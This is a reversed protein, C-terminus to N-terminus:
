QTDRRDKISQAIDDVNLDDLWTHRDKTYDGHGPDFQQLFRLAGAPGLRDRLAELGAQRIEPITMSKYQNM